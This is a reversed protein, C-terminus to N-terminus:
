HPLVIPLLLQRQAITVDVQRRWARYCHCYQSYSYTSQGAHREQYEQWLLGLTVGKRRLELHVEAWGPVVRQPDRVPDSAYLLQELQEDDLEEPLPWGLAAVQARRVCDHVTTAGIGLAKATERQSLGAEWRLRLIERIKRM